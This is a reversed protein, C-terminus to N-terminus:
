SAMAEQASQAEPHLLAYHNRCLDMEGDRVRHETCIPMACASQRVTEAPALFRILLDPNPHRVTLDCLSVASKSCYACRHPRLIATM